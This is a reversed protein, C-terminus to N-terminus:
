ICGEKKRKPYAQSRHRHRDSGDTGSMNGARLVKLVEDEIKKNIIFWTFIDKPDAQVLKKGGLLALKNKNM